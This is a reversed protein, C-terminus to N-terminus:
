GRRPAYVPPKEASWLVRFPPELVPPSPPSPQDDEADPAAKAACDRFALLNKVGIIAALHASRLKGPPVGARSGRMRSPSSLSM